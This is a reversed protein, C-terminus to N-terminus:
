EPTSIHFPRSESILLSTGKSARLTITCDRKLGPRFYVAGANLVTGV